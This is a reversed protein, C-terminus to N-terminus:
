DTFRAIGWSSWGPIPTTKSKEEWILKLLTGDKKRLKWLRRSNEDDQLDSLLADQEVTIFTNKLIVGTIEEASYGTNKECIENWYVIRENSDFAIVMQPMTNLVIMLGKESQRSEIELKKLTTINNFTIVVGDIKDDMTKYPMIRMMYWQGSESLIDKEIVQLRANVEKIDEILNNYKVKLVFDTIPRGIDTQRLNVIDLVDATFKKIKLDRNLFLTAIQTANLLNALDNHAESLEDIRNQLEANVTMLEENLSQMEEKSTTLEENTSQIEENTSQLEENASRLEEEKIEMDQVVSVLNEQALRLEFELQKIINQTNNNNGSGTDSSAKYSETSIGKEIFVILFTIEKTSRDTLPIAKLDTFVIDNNIKLKINRVIETEGSNTVKRILGPLEFLLEEKAMLLINLSAKGTAPELFKGTKGSIYLIDGSKNILVAPPTLMELIMKQALEPLSAAEQKVNKGASDATLISSTFYNVFVETKPLAKQPIVKKRFIKWKSNLTEFYGSSDGLSEASGLFLVGGENLSFHFLGILKQQIEKNLYIMLNRCILLDTKIFPPDYILNQNAFTIMERVEKRIKYKEGEKRFYNSLIDQPLSSLNDIDYVGKRAIEIADKELDTAYIRVKVGTNKNRLYERFSIAVSYAEEGTSCGAIWVKVVEYEKKESILEPIIVESLFLFADKDRFFETVGILLEKYLLEAESPVKKILHLYDKIDTVQNILMRRELRRIITSRKYNTFDHNTLEAIVAFLENLSAEDDGLEKEKLSQTKKSFSDNLLSLIGGFNEPNDIIDACSTSIASDPMGAYLATAPDQVIVFGNYAKISVVGRKGDEGMGSLIVGVAKEKKEKALSNFFHDISHPILQGPNLDETKFKNKRVSVLKDSPAVYIRGPEIEMLDTILIAKSNLYNSIIETLRSKITADQHIIVVYTVDNLAPLNRLLDELAKSSGASGGIGVVIFEKKRGMPSNVGDKKVIKM